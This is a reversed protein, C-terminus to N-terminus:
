NEVLYSYISGNDSLAYIVDKNTAKDTSIIPAGIVRKGPFSFRGVLRGTNKNFFYMDGHNGFVLINNGVVAPASVGRRLLSDNQWLTEGTKKDLAFIKSDSATVYLYDVDEAMQQHSSIKQQWNLRRTSGDVSVVEGQFSNIYVTTDNILPQGAIDRMRELENVGNPVSIPIDWLGRGVKSDLALLQGNSLGIIAVPGAVVPAVDLRLSLNPLDRQIAWEQEGTESNFGVIRGDQSRVIAINAAEVPAILVESKLQVQWKKKGSAKDFAIVQGDNNAVYVNKFGVNIGASLDKKSKKSWVKKGSTKDFAAMRGSATSAYITEGDHSIQFGRVDKKFSGGVNKSWSKKLNFTNKVKPKKNPETLSSDKKGSCSALFVALCIIFIKNKSFNM